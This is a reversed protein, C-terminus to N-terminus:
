SRIGSISITTRHTNTHNKRFTNTAFFPTPSNKKIKKLHKKFYYLIKAIQLM